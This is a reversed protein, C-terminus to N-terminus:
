QKEPILNHMGITCVVPFGIAQGALAQFAIAQLQAYAEIDAIRSCILFIPGNYFISGQLVRM